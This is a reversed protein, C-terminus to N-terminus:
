QWSHDGKLGSFTKALSIQGSLLRLHLMKIDSPHHVLTQMCSTNRLPREVTGNWQIVLLYNSKGKNWKFYHHLKVM